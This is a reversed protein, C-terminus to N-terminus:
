DAGQSNWVLPHGGSRRANKKLYENRCDGGNPKQRLSPNREEKKWRKDKKLINRRWKSNTTRSRHAPRLQRREHIRSRASPTTTQEHRGRRISKTWQIKPSIPTEQRIKVPRIRQQYRSIEAVRARVLPAPEAPLTQAAARGTQPEAPQRRARAAARNRLQDVRPQQSIRPDLRGEPKGPKVAQGM